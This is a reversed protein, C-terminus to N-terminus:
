INEKEKKNNARAGKEEPYLCQSAGLFPLL